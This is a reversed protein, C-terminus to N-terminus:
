QKIRGAPILDFRLHTNNQLIGDCYNQKILYINNKYDM